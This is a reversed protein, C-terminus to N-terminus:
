SAEIRAMLERFTALVEVPPAVGHKLLYMRHFVDLPELEDLDAIQTTEVETQTQAESKTRFRVIRPLGEDGFHRAIMNQFRDVEVHEGADVLVDVYLYPPLETDWELSRVLDAVDDTKGEIEYVDRWRPVLRKRARVTEGAEVEIVYRPTRAEIVSIPVPSGSYWVHRSGVQHCRHIHGLAVYDFVDSFVSTPLGFVASYSHIPTYFDGEELAKQGDSCTLHGMGILPVDGFEAKAKAALMDHLEAFRAAYLRRLESADTDTTAIGLRSESLYPVAIVVAACEDGNMIPVIAEEPHEPDLSGIVTVGVSELIQRPAELRSPSDHNGAVVVVHRLTEIQDCRALFGFFAAQASASPQSYHYIDGSILLVETQRRELEGLLWEM